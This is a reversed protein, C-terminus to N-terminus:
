VRPASWKEKVQVCCCSGSVWRCDHAAQMRQLICVNLWNSWPQAGSAQAADTTNQNIKNQKKGRRQAAKQTSRSGRSEPQIQSTGSNRGQSTASAPISTNPEGTNVQKTVKNRINKKKWGPKQERPTRKAKGGDERLKLSPLKSLIPSPTLEM